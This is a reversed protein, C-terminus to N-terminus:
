ICSYKLKGICIGIICVGIAGVLVLSCPNNGTCKLKVDDIKLKNKNRVKKQITMKQLAVEM